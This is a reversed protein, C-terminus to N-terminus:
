RLEGTVGALPRRTLERKDSNQTVRRFPRCVGELSFNEREREGRYTAASTGVGGRVAMRDNKM